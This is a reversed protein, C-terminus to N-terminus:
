GNSEESLYKYYDDMVRTRYVSNRRNLENYGREGVNYMEVAVPMEYKKLLRSLLKTGAGINNYPEHIAAIEATTTNRWDAVIGFEQAVIPMIGMLGYSPDSPNKASINWSSENEIIAKIIATPVNYYKSYHNIIDSLTLVSPSDSTKPIQYNKESAMGKTVAYLFLALGGLAIYLIM